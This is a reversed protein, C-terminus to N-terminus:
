PCRRCRRTRGAAACRRRSSRRGTGAAASRRRGAAVRAARESTPACGRGSASGAPTSRRSRRPTRRGWSSARPATASSSASGSARRSESATTSGDASTGARPTRRSRAGPTSLITLEDYPYREDFTPVDLLDAEVKFFTVGAFLAWDLSGPKATRRPLLGRRRRLRGGHLRIGVARGVGHAASQPLSPASAHRRGHRQRRPHRVLLGRPARPRQLPEGASGGDGGLGTGAEDSTSITQTEAYVTSRVSTTTTSRARCRM